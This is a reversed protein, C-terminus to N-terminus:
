FLFLFFTFVIVFLCISLVDLQTIQSNLLTHFDILNYLKFQQFDFSGAM